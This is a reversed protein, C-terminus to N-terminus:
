ILAQEQLFKCKTTHLSPKNQYPLDQRRKDAREVSHTKCQLEAGQDQREMEAQIQKQHSPLSHPIAEAELHDMGTSKFTGLVQLCVTSHQTHKTFNISLTIM